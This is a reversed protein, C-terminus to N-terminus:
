GIAALHRRPKSIPTLEDGDTAARYNAIPLGDLTNPDPMDEIADAIRRLASAMRTRPMGPRFLAVAECDAVHESTWAKVRRTRANYGLRFM